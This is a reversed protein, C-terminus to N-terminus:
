LFAGIYCGSAHKDLSKLGEDRAGVPLTHTTQPGPTEKHITRFTTAIVFDRSSAFDRALDLPVASIGHGFMNVGCVQLLRLIAFPDEDAIVEEVLDLLREHKAGLNTLAVEIFDPDNSVHRPVAGLCSAFCEVIHPFAAGVASLDM